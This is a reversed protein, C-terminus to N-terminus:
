TGEKTPETTTKTTGRVGDEPSGEGVVATATTGTETAPKKEAAQEVVWALDGILREVTFIVEAIPAEITTVVHALLVPKPPLSALEEVTRQDLLRGDVVAGRVALREEHAKRFEVITKATPLVDEGTLVLAVSGQFLDSLGAIGLREIARLGLRRTTVVVRAQSAHLKKRLADAEIAPLRNITTVFFNPQKSLRSSLEAVMSEKVM